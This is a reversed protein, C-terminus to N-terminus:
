HQHTKDGTVRLCLRAYSREFIAQLVQSPDLSAVNLDFVTPGSISAFQAVLGAATWRLAMAANRGDDGHCRFVFRQRVGVLGARLAFRSLLTFRSPSPAFSPM